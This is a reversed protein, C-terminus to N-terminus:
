NVNATIHRFIQDVLSQEMREYIDAEELDDSLSADTSVSYFRSISFSEAPYLAQDTNDLLQYSATSILEYESVKGDAGVSLVRRDRGYNSIVITHNASGDQVLNISNQRLANRISRYFQSQKSIGQVSVPGFSAPLSAAQRLQFGCSSITALLTFALLLISIQSYLIKNKLNHM